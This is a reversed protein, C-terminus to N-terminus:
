DLALKVKTKSIGFTNAIEDITWGQKRLLNIQEIEVKTLCSHKEELWKLGQEYEKQTIEKKEKLKKIMVKKMHKQSKKFEIANIKRNKLEKAV